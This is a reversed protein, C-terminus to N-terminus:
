IEVEPAKPCTAPHDRNWGRASWDNSPMEGPNKGEVVQYFTFCNNGDRSVYFCAGPQSEYFTCFTDGVVEWRGVDAGRGDHYRITGGENYTESFFTGDRYIGDLTIGHFASRIEFGALRDGAAAIGGAFLSVM